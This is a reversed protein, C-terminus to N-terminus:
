DEKVLDHGVYRLPGICVMNPRKAAPFLDIMKKYYAGYRGVERRILSTFGTDQGPKYPRKEIGALREHIYNTFNSKGLEGGNITDIGLEIQKAVTQAVADRLGTTLVAKDYPEGNSRAFVLARLADARPLAGAHTTMIRGTSRLM